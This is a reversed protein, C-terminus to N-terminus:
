AGDKHGEPNDTEGQLWRKARIAEIWDVKKWTESDVLEVGEAAAIEKLQAVTQRELGDPVPGEPNDSTAGVPTPKATAVNVRRWRRSRDLIAIRAADTEPVELLPRKSDPIYKYTPM